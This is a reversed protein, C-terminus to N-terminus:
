RDIPSIGGDSCPFSDSASRATGAADTVRLSATNGFPCSRYFATPPGGFIDEQVFDAGFWIYDYPSTGGTVDPNCQYFDALGLPECNINVALTSPPPPPPSTSNTFGINLLRNPSGSGIGSLRNTVAGNIVASTVTATSATRNNQLYMAVAGAVHPSAMSTGNLTQVATNSSNWTSTIGSGPAFLDLCSGFNSFSSRADSSTTSGVTIANAVRAPSFNCANTNSNGAAVVVTVGRNILNNVSQDMASSAPGGLSMNAVAPTIRNNAVWDVGAIIAATSTTNGCGFVRVPYLNVSKAAGYTASGVTGAVHTGHGNCDNTGQGDNISTFGSRVRGGFNTHSARIGTDIVYANVGSGTATYTYSNSLPLSTQDIRDLGWTVPSQTVNLAYTQNAEVYAVAPDDALLLAQQDDLGKLVFGTLAHAFQLGIEGGYRSSLDQAYLEVADEETAALNRTQADLVSDQKLVVIFEKNIRTESALGRLKEYGDATQAHADNFGALAMTMSLALASLRATNIFRTNFSMQM